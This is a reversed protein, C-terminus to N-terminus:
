PKKLYCCQMKDDVSFVIVVAKGTVLCLFAGSPLASVRAPHLRIAWARTVQNESSKSISHSQWANLLLIETLWFVSSEILFRPPLSPCPSNLLIPFASPVRCEKNQELNGQWRFPASSMGHPHSFPTCACSLLWFVRWVRFIFAWIWVHM